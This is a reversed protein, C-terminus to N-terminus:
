WIRREKRLHNEVFINPIKGLCIIRKDGTDELLTVECIHKSYQRRFAHM